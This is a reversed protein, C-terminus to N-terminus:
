RIISKRKSKNVSLPKALVQMFHAFMMKDDRLQDRLVTIRNSAAVCGVPDVGGMCRNQESKAGQLESILKTRETLTM